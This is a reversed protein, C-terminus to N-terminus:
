EGIEPVIGVAALIEPDAYDGAEEDVLLRVVHAGVFSTSAGSTIKDARAKGDEVSRCVVPAVAEPRQIGKRDVKLVYPQFIIREEAAMM